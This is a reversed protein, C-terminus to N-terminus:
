CSIMRMDIIFLDFNFTELVARELDQMVNDAIIPSLPSGM